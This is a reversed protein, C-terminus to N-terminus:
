PAHVAVLLAAIREAAAVTPLAPTARPIDPFISADAVHLGDIGLVAAAGDVVSSPDDTRGMRLTGAPHWYHTHSRRMWDRLGEGALERPDTGIPDGLYEALPGACLEDAVWRIGFEVSGLDAGERDSFFRPDVAATISPDTSRLRVSGRSRPRLQSVPLIVRWGSAQAEDPEVWPYVHLDFPGDAFPSRLKAMAQEEPVWQTRGFERPAEALAATGAFELQVTPHDHLNRGVAPLDRVVPIGLARLEEAPGVGSRLLVEPSGYAGASLVILDARATRREAGVFYEVGDARAGSFTIRDVLANARITLLPDDRVADLYAGATNIRVTGRTNVPAVGAGVGGDLDVLDDRRPLGASTCAGLFAAHFPQIEAATYERLRMREAASAFFPRMSRASWGDGADEALADWDGSWGATQTCGNHSSCGGIVRARDFLLPQGGAGAGTYGWDHSTPLSAADLLDDPWGGDDLPGYDPGAELLLVSRGSEVLRAAIVAGATGGGIVITDARDADAAEAM